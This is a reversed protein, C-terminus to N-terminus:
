LQQELTTTPTAAQSFPQFNPFDVLVQTFAELLAISAKGTHMFEGASVDHLRQVQGEWVIQNTAVDRIEIIVKAVFRRSDGMAIHEAFDDRKTDPTLNDQKYRLEVVLDSAARTKAYTNAPSMGVLSAEPTLGHRALAVSLNSVMVPGLFAPMDQTTVVFTEYNATPCCQIVRTGIGSSNSTCASLLIGSALVGCFAFIKLPDRRFIRQRM